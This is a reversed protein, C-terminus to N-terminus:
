LTPFIGDAVEQLAESQVIRIRQGALSEILGADILRRLTRSLTESTLNLHSALDKKLSPLEFAAGQAEGANLLYRAVRGAADRLVIDEMLGVLQRVWFAM